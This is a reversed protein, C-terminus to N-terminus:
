HASVDRMDFSSSLHGYISLSDHSSRLERSPHQTGGCARGRYGEGLRAETGTSLPRTTHACRRSNEGAEPRWRHNHDAKGTGPLVVLPALRPPGRRKCVLGPRQPEAVPVSWARQALWETAGPGVNTREGPLLSSRGMLLRERAPICGAVPESISQAGPSKGPETEGVRECAPSTM